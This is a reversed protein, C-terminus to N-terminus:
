GKLLERRLWAEAHRTERGVTAISVGLAEASEEVSLGGFYRLEIVRAKRKDVTELSRLADDLAILDAAKEDSYNLTDKFEVKAHGGGRKGAVKTRAHDVLIQRMITAALNFFHARDNWDSESGMLRLYAEHVLATPQLTHGSAQNRLYSAALRRLEQYVLPMVQDIAAPDGERGRRLLRTVNPADPSMVVAM